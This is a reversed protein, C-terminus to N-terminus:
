GIIPLYIEILNWSGKINRAKQTVFGAFKKAFFFFSV